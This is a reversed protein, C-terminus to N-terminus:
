AAQRVAPLLEVLGAGVLRELSGRVEADTTGCADAARVLQPLSRPGARLEALILGDCPELGLPEAWRRQAAELSERGTGRVEQVAM